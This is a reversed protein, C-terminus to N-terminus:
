WVLDHWAVGAYESQSKGYHTFGLKEYYSVLRDYTLISIREAQATEMMHEIYYAMLTKGYGLKQFNPAVALSHLTITKGEPRHGMDYTATPDTKWASPVAMDEDTVVSSVSKTSITHAILDDRSSTESPNYVLTTGQRIIRGPSSKGERAFLGLCLGPCVTLRYEIHTAKERTAAEAPPFAAAEVTVCRDLDNLSLPRIYLDM